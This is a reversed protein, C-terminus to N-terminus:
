LLVSVVFILSGCRVKFLDGPGISQLTPQLGLQPQDLFNLGIVVSLVRVCAILQKM